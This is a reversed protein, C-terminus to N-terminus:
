QNTPEPHAWAKKGPHPAGRGGGVPNQGRAGGKGWGGRGNRITGGQSPEGMARGSGKPGGSPAPCMPSPCFATTAGEQRARLWGRWGEVVRKPEVKGQATKARRLLGTGDTAAGVPRKTM